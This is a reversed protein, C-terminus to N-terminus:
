ILSFAGRRLFLQIALRLGWVSATLCGEKEKKMEELDVGVEKEEAKVVKVSKRDLLPSASKEQIRRLEERKSCRSDTKKITLLRSLPLGKKKTLMLQFALLRRM